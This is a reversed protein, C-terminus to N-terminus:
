SGTVPLSAPLRSVMHLLRAFWVPCSGSLSHSALYAVDRCIHVRRGPPRHIATVLEGPMTVEYVFGADMAIPVLTAYACKRKDCVTGAPLLHSQNLDALGRTPGRLS